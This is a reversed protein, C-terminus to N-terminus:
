GAHALAGLEGLREDAIGLQDEEVLRGSAEVWESALLHEREDGSEPDNPM